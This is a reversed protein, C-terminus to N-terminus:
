LDSRWCYNWVSVSHFQRHLSCLRALRFVSNESYYQGTIEDSQSLLYDPDAGLRNNSSQDLFDVEVDKYKNTAM